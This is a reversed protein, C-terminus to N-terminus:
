FALPPAGHEQILLNRAEGATYISGTILLPADPTALELGRAIADRLHPVCEHPAEGAARSLAELPLARKGQFETLILHKANPALAGLMGPVDKDSATSLVTVCGPAAEALRRAGAVNHAVDIIVPPVGDGCPIRELRCPWRVEALGARVAAEDLKPYAPVLAELLAIALAANEGQYRGALALPTDEFSFRTGQYTLRQEWVPGAISFDFDKGLVSVPCGLEQARGLIVQQPAARREGVVAPVGPKFIGAKEYAIEELTDGLYATHELDINTVATALPTLVNTSDLRGGMGVEALAADTGCQSFWRFAIATCLEFFTPSPDMTEAVARFFAINERLADEPIPLGNRLFRERVDILHPSTFRCVNYGAQRLATGCIAVVSGKGNTGAVHISPFARHPDGAAELLHLINGFGLKIGHLTLGVLYERAAEGSVSQETASM